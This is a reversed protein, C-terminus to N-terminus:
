TPKFPHWKNQSLQLLLLVFAFTYERASRTNNPLTTIHTNATSNLEAVVIIKSM